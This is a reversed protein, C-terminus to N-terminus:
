DLVLKSNFLENVDGDLIKSVNRNISKPNKIQVVQFHGFQLFLAKLKIIAAIREKSIGWQESTHQILIQEQTKAQASPINPHCYQISKVKLCSMSKQKFVMGHLHSLSLVPKFPITDLWERPSMKTGGKNARGGRRKTLSSLLDDEEENAEPKTLDKTQANISILRIPM